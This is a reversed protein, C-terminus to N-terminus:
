SQLLRANEEQIARIEKRYHSDLYPSGQYSPTPEPLVDSVLDRRQISGPALQPIEHHAANGYFSGSDIHSTQFPTMQVPGEHPCFVRGGERTSSPLGPKVLDRLRYGVYDVEFDQLRDPRRTQRKPRM